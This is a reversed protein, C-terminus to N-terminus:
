VSHHDHLIKGLRKEIVEPSIFEFLEPLPPGDQQSSLILRLPMFLKKGKLGFEEKLHSLIDLWSQSWRERVSAIISPTWGYEELKEFLGESNEDTLYGAWAELDSINMCNPHVLSWFADARDQSIQPCYEEILEQYSKKDLQHFAIKQWFELQSPDFHAASKSVKSLSFSQALLELSLLENHEMAHGLRALFNNIAKPLHGTELLEAISRSGTRKSLPKHDSGLILPFHGYEPAKLGLSELLMIQRPTNTLHDDGRFVHTVQTLVDDLANCFFFASDGSAKRIIFDGITNSDFDKEGMLLDTFKVRTNQQVRYRLVSKEGRAKREQRQALTLDRCRGSYKPAQGQSLQLKRELALDDPTCFCEYAQNQEILQQYYKDYIEKRKSQFVMQDYDIELGMTNLDSKMQEVFTIESRLADTDEFRLLMQGNQAKAYLYNFLATRYNGITMFGTPSPAFRTKVRTTVLDMSYICVFIETTYNLLNLVKKISRLLSKLSNIAM